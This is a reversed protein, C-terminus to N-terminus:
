PQEGLQTTPLCVLNEKAILLGKNLARSIRMAAAARGLGYSEQLKNTLVTREVAGGYESELLQVLLNNESGTEAPLDCLVPLGEENISFAFREFPENRCFQPEVVSREGVKHVYIVTESKRQLSSGLHGRAKDTGPNAHLVCLIHCHYMSSLTMLEDVLSDSEELDNTNRQLDAIGDIVVLTPTHIEILERLAKRREVAEFERMTIVEVRPDVTPKDPKYIGVLRHLRELVKRVHLMGQETDLWLVKQMPSSGVNEFAHGHKRFSLMSGILATALFTKNSKPAGVIASINGPSCVSAGDITLIPKPATYAQRLDVLYPAFRSSAKREELRRISGEFTPICSFGLNSAAEAMLRPNLM